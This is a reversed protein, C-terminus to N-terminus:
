RFVMLHLYSDYGGFGSDKAHCWVEGCTPCQYHQYETRMVPRSTKYIVPQGIPVLNGLTRSAAGTKLREECDQCM